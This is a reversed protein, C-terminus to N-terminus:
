AIARDGKIWKIFDPYDFLLSIINTVVLIWLFTATGGAVAGSSLAMLCIVVLPTWLLIHPLSMFKSFGKEYFIIPLNLIMGFNALYAVMQGHEWDTFFVTAVNVPVLWLNMWIRVWLPLNRLSRLISKM